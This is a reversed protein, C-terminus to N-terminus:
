GNMEAQAEIGRERIKDLRARCLDLDYEMSYLSAKARSLEGALESAKNAWFDASDEWYEADSEARALKAQLETINQTM